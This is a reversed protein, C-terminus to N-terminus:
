GKDKVVMSIEEPTRFQTSFTRVHERCVDSYRAIYQQQLPTAQNTHYAIYADIWNCTAKYGDMHEMQPKLFELLTKFRIMDRMARSEEPVSHSISYMVLVMYSKLYTIDWNGLAMATLDTLIENQGSDIEINSRIHNKEYDRHLASIADDSIDKILPRTIKQNLIHALEHQNVFLFM